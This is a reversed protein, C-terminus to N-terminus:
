DEGDGDGDGEEADGETAAATLGEEDALAAAEEDARMAELTSRTVVGIAVAEEEDVETRVGAPLAIDAVRVSDGVILETVDATLENPIATPLSYVDLTFMTQDVMGNANVVERAEGTLQIPVSVEIEQNPDVRLFDVHTVEDRVPHRQLEKLLCLQTTGDVDLSLLANLGADSTLAVRLDSYVVAIPTPEEALGYVVGPVKGDRRLRRTAAAGTQRGTDVVLTSQNAM